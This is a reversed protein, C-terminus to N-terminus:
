GHIGTRVENVGACFRHAQAQQLVRDVLAHVPRCRDAGEELGVDEGDPIEHRQEFPQLPVQGAYFKGPHGHTIRFYTKEDVLNDAAFFGIKSGIALPEAVEFEIVPGHPLRSCVGRRDIGEQVGNLGAFGRLRDESLGSQRRADVLEGPKGQLQGAGTLEMLRGGGEGVSPLIHNRLHEQWQHVRQDCRPMGLEAQQPVIKLPVDGEISPVVPLQGSAHHIAKASLIRLLPLFRHVCGSRGDFRPDAEPVGDQCAQWRSLLLWERESGVGECSRNLDANPCSMACPLPHAM